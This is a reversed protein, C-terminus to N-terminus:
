ELRDGYTYLWAHFSPELWETPFNENDKKESLPFSLLYTNM